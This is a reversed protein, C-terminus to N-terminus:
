KLSFGSKTARRRLVEDGVLLDHEGWEHRRTDARRTHVMDASQVFV